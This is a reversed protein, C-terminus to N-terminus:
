QGNERVRSSSNRDRTSSSSCIAKILSSFLSYVSQEDPTLNRWEMALAGLQGVPSGTINALKTKIFINYGSLPRLKPLAIVKPKTVKKKVPKKPKAAKKPKKAPKKKKTATKKATTKTTKKPKTTTAKTAAAYTRVRDISPSAPQVAASSRAVHAAPSLAAKRALCISFARVIAPSSIPVKRSAPSLLRRLAVTSSSM